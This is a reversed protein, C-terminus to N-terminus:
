FGSALRAASADNRAGIDSTPTGVERIVSLQRTFKTVDLRWGRDFMVDFPRAGGGEAVPVNAAPRSKPRNRRDAPKCDTAIAVLKKAHSVTVFEPRAM